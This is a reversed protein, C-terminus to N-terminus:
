TYSIFHLHTSYHMAANGGGGENKNKLKTHSSIDVPQVSRDDQYQTGIMFITKRVYENSVAKLM